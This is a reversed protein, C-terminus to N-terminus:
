SHHSTHYPLSLYLSFSFSSFHSTICSTLIGLNVNGSTSIGRSITSLHSTHSLLIMSFFLKLHFFSNTGLHFFLLCLAPDFQHLLIIHSVSFSASSFTPFFTPQRLCIYYSLPLLLHLVGLLNFNIMGLLFRWQFHCVFLFSTSRAPPQPPLDWDLAHPSLWTLHTASLNSQM